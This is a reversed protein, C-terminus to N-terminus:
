SASAPLVISGTSAKVNMALSLLHVTSANRVDRVSIANEDELAIVADAFRIGHKRLNAKAKAPDWEPFGRM